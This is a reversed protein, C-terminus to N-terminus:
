GANGKRRKGSGLPSAAAKRKSSAKSRPSSTKAREGFEARLKERLTRQVEDRNAKTIKYVEVNARSTLRDCFPVRHGYIPATVAGVVRIRKALLKLVAEQFKKSHLEM